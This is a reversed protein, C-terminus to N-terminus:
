KIALPIFSIKLILFAPAIRWARARWLGIGFRNYSTRVHFVVGGKVSPTKKVSLLFVVVCPICRMGVVSSFRAARAVHLFAMRFATLEFPPFIVWVVGNLEYAECIVAICVFVGVPSILSDSPNMTKSDPEKLLMLVLLVEILIPEFATIDFMVAPPMVWILEPPEAVVSVCDAPLANAPRSCYVVESVAADSSFRMRVPLALALMPPMACILLRVREDPPNAETEGFAVMCSVVIEDPPYAEKEDPVTQEDSLTREEPEAYRSLVMRVEHRTEPPFAFMLPMEPAIMLMWSPSHWIVLENMSVYM